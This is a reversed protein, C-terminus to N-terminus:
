PLQSSETGARTGAARWVRLDVPDSVSRVSGDLLLVNVLGPHYSRATVAAYTPKTASEGDRISTVDISYTQGDAPNTYPVKTNPTLTTTYGTEHIDGEVWETHGFSDFTGGFYQQLDSVSQPPAVGLTSPNTTDWMNAQYAVGESMAMTNSLGDTIDSPRYTQNPMFAGDGVSGTVPDYIFWTGENFVYNLPYHILTPTVRQEDKVEDPCLYAAVRTAAAAPNSPFEPNETFNILASLNGMELYPLLRAQGSWPQYTQGQPMLSCPPFAGSTALYNQLALGLQKLNNTCQSRRAAERAMQVAPLLLGILLGIIAIVVLLEVLTFGASRRLTPRPM